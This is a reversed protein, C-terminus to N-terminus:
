NCTNMISFAVFLERPYCKSKIAANFSGEIPRCHFFFFCLAVITYSVIFALMIMTLVLALLIM